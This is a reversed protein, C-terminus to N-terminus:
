KIFYAPNAQGNTARGTVYIFPDNTQNDTLTHFAVVPGDWIIRITDGLQSDINYLALNGMYTGPERFTITRALGGRVHGDPTIATIIAHTFPLFTRGGFNLRLNPDSYTITQTTYRDLIVDGPLYVAEASGFKGSPGDNYVRVDVRPLIATIDPVIDLSGVGSAGIAAVVDDWEVAPVDETLEYAMQPDTDRAPQGMPHFIIVGRGQGTLRLYTKFRAGYAGPASGVIPIVGRNIATRLEHDGNVEVSTSGACIPAFLDAPGYARVVYQYTVDRTAYHTVEISTSSDVSREVGGNFGTLGDTVAELLTYSTAGPVPDWSLTYKQGSQPNSTAHVTIRCDAFAAMSGFVVILLVLLSRRQM